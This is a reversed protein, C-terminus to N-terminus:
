HKACLFANHTACSFFLQISFIFCCLSLSSSKYLIPLIFILLVALITVPSRTFLICCMSSFSYMTSLETENCLVMEDFCQLYWLLTSLFSQNRCYHVVSLEESCSQLCLLVLETIKNISQSRYCQVTTKLGHHASINM